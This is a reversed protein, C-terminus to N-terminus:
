QKVGRSEAIRQEITPRGCGGVKRPKFNKRNRKRNVRLCRLCKPSDGFPPKGCNYCRGLARMKKQWELQRSM